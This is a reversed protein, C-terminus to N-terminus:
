NHSVMIYAFYKFYIVRVEAAHYFHNPNERWEHEHGEHTVNNLECKYKGMYMLGVILTLASVIPNWFACRKM